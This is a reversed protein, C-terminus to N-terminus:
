RLDLRSLWVTVKLLLIDIDILRRYNFVEARIKCQTPLVLRVCDKATRRAFAKGRISFYEQLGKWWYVRDFM